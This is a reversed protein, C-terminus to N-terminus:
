QFISPTDPTFEYQNSFEENLQKPNGKAKEIIQNFNIQKEEEDM